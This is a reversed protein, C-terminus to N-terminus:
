RFVKIIKNKKVYGKIVKGSRLNKVRILDGLHGSNQAEGSVIVSANGINSVISLVDGNKVEYNEYLHRPHLLQGMKLNKKLKRGILEKKNNFFSLQSSKDSFILNMDEAKLISNKEMTKKLKVLNFRKKVKNTSFNKIKKNKSIINIKKNKVIKIKDESKIRIVINFANKDPCVVKITKYDQFLKSIKLINKCDKFVIKKSFIPKGKIGETLLWKSVKNTIEEGTIAISNHTFLIFSFTCFIKLSLKIM